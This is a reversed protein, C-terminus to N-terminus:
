GSSGGTRALRGPECTPSASSGLGRRRGRSTRAGGHGRGGSGGGPGRRCGRAGAQKLAHGPETARLLRLWLRLRLILRLARLGAGAQADRAEEPPLVVLLAGAARVADNTRPGPLKPAVWGSAGERWAGHLESGNRS